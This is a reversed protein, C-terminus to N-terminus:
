FSYGLSIGAWPIVAYKAEDALPIALMPTFGARFLIGKKKQSRYGIVGHIFMNYLEGANFNASLGGGIELRSRKGGFYYGMINPAWGEEIGAVGLSFAFTEKLRFDVNMSIWGKGGLELFPSVSSEWGTDSFVGPTPFNENASEQAYLQFSLILLMGFFYRKFIRQYIITKM